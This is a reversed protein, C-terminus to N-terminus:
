AWLQAAEIYLLSAITCVGAAGCRQAPLALHTLARL